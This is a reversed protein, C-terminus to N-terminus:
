LYKDAKAIEFMLKADNLDEIPKPVAAKGALDAAHVRLMEVWECTLAPNEILAKYMDWKKFSGGSVGEKNRFMEKKGEKVGPYTLKAAYYKLESPAIVHIDTSITKFLKSRLMTGFTVLDILPGAASSFSYGEIYVKTPGQFGRYSTKGKIYNVIKSTIDDYSVLKRLETDAFSLSEKDFTHFFFEAYPDCVQFWKALHHNKTHATADTTFVAKKDNVVVATCSLSPDICVINTDIDM